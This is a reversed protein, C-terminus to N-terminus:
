VQAILKVYRPENPFIFPLVMPAFQLHEPFMQKVYHTNAIGDPRWFGALPLPGAAYASNPMIAVAVFQQLDAAATAATPVYIAGQYNFASVERIVIALMFRSTMQAATAGMPGGSPVAAMRVIWFGRSSYDSPLAQLEMEAPDNWSGTFTHALPGPMRARGLVAARQRARRPDFLLGGTPDRKLLVDAADLSDLALNSMFFTEVTPALLKGCNFFKKITTMSGQNGGINCARLEVRDLKLARVAQVAGMLRNFTALNPLQLPRLFAPVVNTRYHNDAQASTFTGTLTVNLSTFLATWAAIKAQQEQPTKEPMARIVVVRAEANGLQDLLNLATVDATAGGTVIPMLLGGQYAHCVIMVTGSAGAAAMEGLVAELTTNTLRATAQPDLAM